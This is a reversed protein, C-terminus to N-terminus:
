NKLFCIEFDSNQNNSGYGILYIDFSKGVIDNFIENSNPHYKFTCHLIDNIDNIVDLKNEELSKILNFMDDEFFLGEYKLM